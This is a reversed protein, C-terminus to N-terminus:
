LNHFSCLSSGLLSLSLYLSLLPHSVKIHSHIYSHFTNNYDETKQLDQLYLKMNPTSPWSDGPIDRSSSCKHRSVQLFLFMTFSPLDVTEMFNGASIDTCLLQFFEFYRNSTLTYSSHIHNICVISSFERKVQIFFLCAQDM